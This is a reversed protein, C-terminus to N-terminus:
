SGAAWLENFRQRQVAVLQPSEVLLTLDDFVFFSGASWNHSGILAQRDDILVLKSHLLLDAPDSRVPVGNDKLFQVAPANIVTSLYPDAERDQDVLVRVSVGRQCADVLGQLLHRVPHTPTPLAIHFMCVEISQQAAAFLTQLRSYYRSGILATVQQAPLGDAVPPLPDELLAQALPYRNAAAATLLLELAAAARDIPQTQNQVALLLRLDDDLNHTVTVQLRARPPLFTVSSALRLATERGIGDVRNALDDPSTFPRRRREEVIRKALGAGIYPLSEIKAAPASNLDIRQFARAALMQGDQSDEIVYGPISRARLHDLTHLVAEHLMQRAVASREAEDYPRSSVAKGGMKSFLAALLPELRSTLLAPDGTYHAAAGIQTVLTSTAFIKWDFTYFM